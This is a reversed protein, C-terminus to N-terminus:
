GILDRNDVNNDSKSSLQQYMPHKTIVLIMLVAQKISSLRQYRTVCARNDGITIVFNDDSTDFFIM